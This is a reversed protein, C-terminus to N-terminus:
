YGVTTGKGERKFVETTGNKETENKPIKVKRTMKDEEKEKKGKTWIKNKKELRSM